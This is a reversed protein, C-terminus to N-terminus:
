SLLAGKWSYGHSATYGKALCRVGQNGEWEDYTKDCAQSLLQSPVSSDGAKSQQEGVTAPLTHGAGPAPFARGRQIHVSLTGGQLAKIKPLAELDWWWQFM